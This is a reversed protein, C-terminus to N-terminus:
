PMTISFRCNCSPEQRCSQGATLHDELASVPLNLSQLKLFAFLPVKHCATLLNSLQYIIFFDLVAQKPAGAFQRSGTRSIPSFYWSSPSLLHQLHLILLLPTMCPHDLAAIKWLKLMGGQYPPSCSGSTNGADFYISHTVGIGM